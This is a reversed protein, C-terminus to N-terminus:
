YQYGRDVWYHWDEIVEQTEEDADIADLQSLPVALERGQWIIEVFIEKECEDESTMGQVEVVEGEQLPSIRRKSICKAKFPCHLKDQIYYYWGMAREQEDYADVVAEYDIRHERDSDKSVITM